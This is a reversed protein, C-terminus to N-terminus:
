IPADVKRQMPGRATGSRLCQRAWRDWRAATARARAQVHAHGGALPRSAGNKCAGVDSMYLPREHCSAVVRFSAFARALLEATRSSTRRAGPESTTDARPDRTKWIECPRNTTSLRSCATSPRENAIVLLCFSQSHAHATPTTILPGHSHFCLTPWEFCAEAAVPAGAVSACGVRALRERPTARVAGATRM